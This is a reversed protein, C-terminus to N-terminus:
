NERIQNIIEICEDTDMDRIASLLNNVSETDRDDYSYGKLKEGIEEMADMDLDDCAAALAELLSDFEEADILPKDASEEEAYYPSMKSLLDRFSELLADTDKMITDIDNAKGAKELAEAKDGLAMAGIQRSSSKLAHVKITYAEWDKKAFSDLIGNYKDNGSLYYEKAIKEFLAASGFGRVATEVDLEDIDISVQEEPINEEAEHDGEGKPIIKESPLWEKLKATLIRIDIPKAVFDNMGAEKFLKRAEEVANASLAIIVPKEPDNTKARIAKTADIGDVIPMMHDMLIIDYDKEAAMDIAKQGGDAKDLQLKLPMMLGEAITLNIANDDVVLIKADPATFGPAFVKKEDVKRMIDFNDNLADVMNMTSQPRYMLHINKEPVDMDFGPKVLMVGICDPHNGFFEKLPETYHYEEIFFYERKGTPVYEAFSKLVKSEVGLSNMEKNFGDVTVDDENIGYAFKSGADVVTLDNTDDVVDVPVTFWFDSGKGYESEFGIDGGMARVLKQSIALGLGTGEM